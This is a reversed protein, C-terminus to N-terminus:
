NEGGKGIQKVNIRAIGIFDLQAKFGLRETEKNSAYMLAKITEERESLWDLVEQITQKKVVRANARKQKTM